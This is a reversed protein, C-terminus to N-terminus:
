QQLPHGAIHQARDESYDQDHHSEVTPPRSVRERGEARRLVPLGERGRARAEGASACPQRRMECVVNMSYSAAPKTRLKPTSRSLSPPRSTSIANSAWGLR